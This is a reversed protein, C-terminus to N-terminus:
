GLRFKAKVHYLTKSTVIEYGKCIACGITFDVNHKDGSNPGKFKPLFFLPLFVTDAVVEADSPSSSVDTFSLLM